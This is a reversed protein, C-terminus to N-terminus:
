GKEALLLALLLTLRAGDLGNTVVICCRRAAQMDCEALGDPTM